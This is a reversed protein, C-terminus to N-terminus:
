SVNDIQIDRYVREITRVTQEISYRVTVRRYGNNGMEVGRKPDSALARMAQSFSRHNGSSVLYGTTGDNVIEGVGGVETAIVPLGARM